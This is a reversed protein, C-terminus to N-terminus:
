YTGHIREVLCQDADALKLSVGRRAFAPATGVCKRFSQWRWEEFRVGSSPAFVAHSTRGNYLRGSRERERGGERTWRWVGHVESERGDERGPGGKSSYADGLGDDRIMAGCRLRRRALDDRVAVAKGEGVLRHGETSVNAETHVVGDRDVEAGRRWGVCVDRHVSAGAGESVVAEDVVKSVIDNCAKTLVLGPGRNPSKSMPVESLTVVTSVDSGSLTGGTPGPNGGEFNWIGVKFRVVPVLNYRDTTSVIIPHLTQEVHEPIGVLNSIISM